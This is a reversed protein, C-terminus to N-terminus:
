SNLQSEIRVRDILRDICNIIDVSHDEMDNLNVLMKNYDGEKFSNIALEGSKHMLEHPHAIAVFEQSESLFTNNKMETYWKGLRCEASSDLSKDFKENVLMDYLSAKWVAHDIKATNLVSVYSQSDSFSSNLTALRELNDIRFKIEDLIVVNLNGSVSSSMDHSNDFESHLREHLGVLILSEDKLKKSIGRHMLLEATAHSAESQIGTLMSLARNRCLLLSELKRSKEKEDSLQCKLLTIISQKDFNM